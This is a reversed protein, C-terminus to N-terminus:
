LNIVTEKTEFEKILSIVDCGTTELVIHKLDDTKYSIVLFIKRTKIKKKKARGGIIAGPVGFLTAGAIAGGVSSTYLTQLETETMIKVDIINSKLINFTLNGNKIALNEGVVGFICQSGQPIDLGSIINGYYKITNKTKSKTKGKSRKKIEKICLWILWSMVITTFTCLYIEIM